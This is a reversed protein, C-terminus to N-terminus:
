TAAMGHAECHGDLPAKQRKEAAGELLKIAANQTKVSEACQENAAELISSRAQLRIIEAKLPGIQSGLRWSQLTWGGLGAFLDIALPKM